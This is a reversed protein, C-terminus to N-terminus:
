KTQRRNKQLPKRAPRKSSNLATKKPRSPKEPKPPKPKEQMKPKPKKPTPNFFEKVEEEDLERYAGVPLRDYDIHGIAIRKLKVVSHGIADFMKRIQQNHGEYLTVEYWGNNETHKLEKIEAPATKFGDELRLGRRLKNIANANPLGKVKVDYVKAFMKSSAVRNTFEGDNTLIILGETNYDLRGVPHLKGFGKVLDTVLKRGEPDAASSLYGKPKNLLIYANKRQELMKNILKGHVKIHDKEGDAKFGLETIIQGNVSVAGNSILEDAGRRSAIGAQAILKNLRELM